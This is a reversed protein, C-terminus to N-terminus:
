ARIRSKLMSWLWDLNKEKEHLLDASALRGISFQDVYSLSNEHLKNSVLISAQKVGCDEESIGILSVMVFELVDLWLGQGRHLDTKLLGPFTSVMTVHNKKLIQDKEELGIQMLENGLSFTFMGEFLTSVEKDGSALARDLPHVKGQGSALVNLVRANKKVLFRHMNAYIIYRGLVAIAFSKDFGDENRLPSSWDPFTAASVVLFDYKKESREILTKVLNKASQITGLDGQIFQINQEERGNKQSGKILKNLALIGSKESRGVVTIDAGAIAMALATGYGVGRTGGILLANKGYYNLKLEESSMIHIEGIAEDKPAAKQLMLQPLLAKLAVNIFVLLAAFRAPRNLM